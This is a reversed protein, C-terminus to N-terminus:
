FNYRVTFNWTRGFGFFAKNSTSIGNYVDDGNGAFRNTLSESIYETDGLNNINLRLNLNSDDKFNFRYSMGLDALFYSPLQLSGDNDADDFDEANIRAYLRDAYRHSYDVSFNDTVDWDFGLRATTQAADGVKVGNLFLDVTGVAQANNDFATGSPNGDYTWDGVSAM